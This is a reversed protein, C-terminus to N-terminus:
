RNVVLKSRIEKNGSQISFFYVGSSVVKGKADKLDWVIKGNNPKLRRIIEGNKSYIKVDSGSKPVKLTVASRAPNPSICIEQNQTQFSSYSQGGGNDDTFRRRAYFWVSDDNNGAIAWLGYRNVPETSSGDYVKGWVLDSGSAVARPIVECDFWAGPLPNYDFDNLYQTYGGLLCHLISEQEKTPITDNGEDPIDQWIPHSTLAGGIFAGDYLLNHRLEWRNTPIIYIGFKDGYGRMAYISDHSYFHIALDAGQDFPEDMGSINFAALREWPPYSVSRPPSAMPGRNYRWFELGSQFGGGKILYFTEVPFGNIRRHGWYEMSGGPGVPYVGPILCDRTWVNTAVDYCWVENCAGFVALVKEGGNVRDLFCCIAADPHPTITSPPASLQHWDLTRGQSINCQADAQWFTYSHTNDDGVLLFLQGELSDPQYKGYALASGQGILPADTPRNFAFWRWRGYTQLPFLVVILLLFSLRKM